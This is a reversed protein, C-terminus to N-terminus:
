TRMTETLQISHAVPVSKIKNGINLHVPKLSKSSSDIFLRWEMPSCILSLAEVLVGIDSCYVLSSKDHLSFFTRFEEDRKRYWFYTTGSVPMNNEDPCSGLLQTSGKSLELDRTLDNLQVQSLPMPNNKNFIPPQYSASTDMDELKTDSDEAIDIDKPVSPVPVKPGHSVPKRASPIDPYM